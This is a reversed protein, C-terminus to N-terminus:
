PYHSSAKLILPTKDTEENLPSELHKNDNQQVHGRM